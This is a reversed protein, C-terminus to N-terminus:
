KTRLAIKASPQRDQPAVMLKRRRGQSFPVPFDSLDTLSKVLSLPDADNSVEDVVNISM